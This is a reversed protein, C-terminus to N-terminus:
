IEISELNVSYPTVIIKQKIFKAIKIPKVYLWVNLRNNQIDDDLNNSEDCVIRYDYVARSAKEPQMFTDLMRTIISRTEEDNFEFLFPKLSQKIAPRLYINLYKSIHADQMDSAFSQMTLEDWIINGSGPDKIITNVQMDSFEDVIEPEFTAAVDISPIIGRNYGAVAWHWGLEKATKMTLACVYPGPSIYIYRDNFEDYMQQHPTYMEMSYSNLNLTEKRYKQIASLPDATVEDEYVTSIIGHCSEDRSKCLEDIAKQYTATTNGGDMVLQIDIDNINGLTKLAVIRDADTVASGDSGGVLKLKESQAKPIPYGSETELANSLARIYLSGELVTEVFCNVGYGNKLSPNLSVTKTEVLQKNKYVKIIFAGELKVEKQDTIIEISLDNNYAGPDAGYILLVDDDQFEYTTPDNFGATVAINSNQSDNSKLVCGGYLAITDDEVNELDQTHAARVVYLGGQQSLYQYAEYYALDWGIEIRENPTFKRLFDTQGTVKVPKNIPGKKAAIVIASNYGSASTVRTSQDILSTQIYPAPM